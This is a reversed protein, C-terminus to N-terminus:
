QRAAGAIEDGIAHEVEGHKEQHAFLAHLELLDRDPVRQDDPDRHAGTDIGRPPDDVAIRLAALGGIRGHGGGRQNQGYGKEEAEITGINRL